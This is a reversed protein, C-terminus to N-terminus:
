KNNVLHALIQRSWSQRVLNNNQAKKSVQLASEEMAKKVKSLKRKNETCERINILCSIGNIVPGGSTIEKKKIRIQNRPSALFM